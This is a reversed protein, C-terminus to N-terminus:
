ISYRMPLYRRNSSTTASLGLRSFLHLNVRKLLFLITNLGSSFSVPNSKTGLSYKKQYISLPSQKEMIFDMLYTVLDM